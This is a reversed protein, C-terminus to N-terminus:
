DNGNLCYSARMKASSCKYLQPEIKYIMRDRARSKCLVLRRRRLNAHFSESPRTRTGSANASANAGQGGDVKDSLSSARALRTWQFKESDRNDVFGRM